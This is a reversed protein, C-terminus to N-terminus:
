RLKVLEAALADMLAQMRAPRVRSGAMVLTVALPAPRCEPLVEVLSGDSWQQRVLFEPIQVLGTGLAAADALAEGHDVRFRSDPTLVVTSGREVLEIPRDRGTTPMRFVLFAHNRLDDVCRIKTSNALYGPHACLLLPQEDIRRAILSSGDLEGFRVVADVGEELLSVRGDAFRLDIELLPYRQQLRTFIPLLVRSGYGIPVSIRLPGAPEDSAAVSGLDLAAIEELLRKTKAYLLRGEETLNVSRTTRHFLQSGLERELRAVSKAVSSPALGLERAAQAFSRHRAVAAFNVFQSLNNM